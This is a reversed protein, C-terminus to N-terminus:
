FGNSSSKSKAILKGIFGIVCHYAEKKNGEIDYLWYNSYKNSNAGLRSYTGMRFASFTLLCGAEFLSKNKYVRVNTKGLAWMNM